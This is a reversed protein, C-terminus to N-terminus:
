KKTQKDLSEQFAKKFSEVDIGKTNEMMLQDMAAKANIYDPTPKIEAPNNMYQKRFGVIVQKAEEPHAKYYAVDHRAHRGCGSSIGVLFLLAISKRMVGRKAHKMWSLKVTARRANELTTQNWSKAPYNEVANLYKRCIWPFNLFFKETYAAKKFDDYMAYFVLVTLGIASYLTLLYLLINLVSNAFTFM